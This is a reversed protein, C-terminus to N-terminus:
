LPPPPIKREREFEDDEDCSEGGSSSETADSDLTNLMHHLNTQLQGSVRNAEKCIQGDIVLVSQSPKEEKVKKSQTAIRKSLAAQNQTSQIRRVLNVLAATSLSKVDESKLLEAKLESHPGSIGMSRHAVSQLNRHLFNVYSGIQNRIHTELQRGQLRRLRRLLRDTRRELVHQKESVEESLEKESKIPDTEDNEIDVYHTDTDAGDCVDDRAVEAGSNVSTVMDSVSTVASAQEQDGNQLTVLNSNIPNHDGNLNTTLANFEISNKLESATKLGNEKPMGNTLELPQNMKWDGSQDKHNLVGVKRTVKDKKGVKQIIKFQKIKSNLGVSKFIKDEIQKFNLVSNLTVKCNAADKKSTISDEQLSSKVEVLKGSPLSLSPDLVKPFKIKQTQTVVPDTLAPAMAVLCCVRLSLPASM